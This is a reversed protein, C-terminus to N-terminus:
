PLKNYPKIGACYVLKQYVTFDTVPSSLYHKNRIHVTHVEPDTEIM